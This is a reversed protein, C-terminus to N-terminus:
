FTRVIYGVRFKNNYYWGSRANDLQKENPTSEDLRQMSCMDTTCKLAKMRSEEVFGLMPQRVLPKDIWLEAAVIVLFLRKSSEVLYAM